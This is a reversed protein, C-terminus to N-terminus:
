NLYTFLSKLTGADKQALAELAPVLDAGLKEVLVDFAANARQDLGEATEQDIPTGSVGGNAGAGSGGGNMNADAAPTQISKQFPTNLKMFGEILKESLFELKPQWSNKEKLEQELEKIRTQLREKEMEARFASVEARVQAAVIQGISEREPAGNIGGGTGDEIDFDFYRQSAGSKAGSKASIAYRGPPLLSIINVFFEISEEIKGQGNEVSHSFIIERGGRKKVALDPLDNLRLWEKAKEATM